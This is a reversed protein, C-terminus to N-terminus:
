IGRPVCRVPQRIRLRPRVETALKDVQASSPWSDQPLGALTAGGLKSQVDVHM